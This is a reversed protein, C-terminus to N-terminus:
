MHVTYSRSELVIVLWAHKQVLVNNQLELPFSLNGLFEVIISFQV